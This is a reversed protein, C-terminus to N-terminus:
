LIMCSTFIVKCWVDLVISVQLGYCIRILDWFLQKTFVCRENKLPLPLTTLWTSAGNEENLNNLLIQQKGLKSRINQPQKNNREIRVSRILNNIPLSTDHAEYRQTLKAIKTCLGEALKM